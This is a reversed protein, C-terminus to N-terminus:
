GNGKNQSTIVENISARQMLSTIVLRLKKKVTHQFRSKRTSMVERIRTAREKRKEQTTHIVIRLRIEQLREQMSENNDHRMRHM